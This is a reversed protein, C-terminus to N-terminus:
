GLSLAVRCGGHPVRHGMGSRCASRCFKPYSIWSGGRCVRYSGGDGGRPDTVEGEPYPEYWDSCWEWANGHLDFLGWANPEFRGVPRTRKGSGYDTGFSCWGARKMAETGDGTHYATTTGARCAWEWEAETPLRARLGLRTLFDQCDDWSVTEVPREDARCERPILRSGGTPGAPLKEVPRGDGKFKSPNVGTAALWQAQTVPYVGLWFGRTLTVRHRSELDERWEESEPSGMLFSGPPIFSFTMEVGVALEITRQPVCPRVGLGLLEGIRAQWVAREPHEDPECCTALLRRHLRLLEARRPDDHEELCDALVSWRDEAQPDAVVADLLGELESM